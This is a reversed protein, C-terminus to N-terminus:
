RGPFTSLGDSLLDFAREAGAHMQQELDALPEGALLGRRFERIVAQHVAIVAASVVAPRLDGEPVKLEHAIVDRLGAAYGGLIERERARLAPSEALLRALTRARRRASSRSPSGGAYTGLFFSRLADFVSAGAPRSRVATALSDQFEVSAPYVLDEKTPFHNFVTRETVGAAAAVAAVSVQDFGHAAFLTMAAETIAGRTAAKQRERAGLERTNHVVRADSVTV